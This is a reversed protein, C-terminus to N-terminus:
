VDLVELNRKGFYMPLFVAILNLIFLSIIVIVVTGSYAINKNHLRALFWLRVPIAELSIVLAIYFLSFIMYIMGGSSSEIQSISEVKLKPFMAGFGVAMGTLSISIFIITIFSLYNMFRGGALLYNSIGILLGGLFVLPIFAMLVKEWLFDWIKIPASKIIWFSEGELSVLPFIFRLSVSALVFGAFCINLFSILSKLFFTDLPLKYINFLYVVILTFLLLLQSWQGTDRFFIKIDKVFVSFIGKNKINLKPLFRYSSSEQTTSWASYYSNKSLYIALFVLASSVSLLLFVYLSFNGWQKSIYMFMASTFWWSPLYKATPVQIVTIYQVVENLKDAKLFDEPQIFRAFLYAAGIFVVGLIIFIDRIKQSPFLRIFVTSVVTGIASAILFFPILLPLVVIYFSNDVFKIRGYAFIFPLFVLLVMWSSYFTTKIFKYTFIQRSSVPLSMLFNLDNSFFITSFSIILNSFILMAFFTLMMMSMLKIILLGGIFEITNLYILVRFFGQYLLWLFIFGIILLFSTKFSDAWSVFKIRNSFIRKELKFLNKVM